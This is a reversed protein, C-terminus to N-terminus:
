PVLEDSSQTNIIEQYDKRKRADQESMYKAWCVIFLGLVICVCGLYDHWTLTQDFVFFSLIIVVATQVPWFATVVTSSTM